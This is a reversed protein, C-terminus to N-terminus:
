RAHSAQRRLYEVLQGPDGLMAPTVDDPNAVILDGVGKVPSARDADDPSILGTKKGVLMLREKIETVSLLSGQSIAELVGAEPAVVILAPLKRVGLEAAQGTDHLTEAFYKPDMESGDLSIAKSKLGNLKELANLVFAQQGCAVCRDDFFFFLGIQESLGAILTDRHKGAEAEQRKSAFSALPMRNSEDLVPDGMVVTKATLAFREAKDMMLRQMYYYARVNEPTPDDIAANLYKPLNAKIWAVSFAPPGAPAAAPPVAAKPPEAPPPPTAPVLPEPDPEAEPEPDPLKEYWFWGEEKRDVYSGGEPVDGQKPPDPFAPASALLTLTLFIRRM